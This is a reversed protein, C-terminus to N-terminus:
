LASLALLISGGWIVVRGLLSRKGATEPEPVRVMYGGYDANAPTYPVYQGNRMYGGYDANAPTYPVYVWKSKAM